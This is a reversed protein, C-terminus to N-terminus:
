CGETELEDNLILNNELVISVDWCTRRTNGKKVPSVLQTETARKSRIWLVLAVGMVRELVTQLSIDQHVRNAFIAM